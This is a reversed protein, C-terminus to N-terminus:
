LGNTVSATNSQNFTGGVGVNAAINTQVAAASGVANLNSVAMLNKQSVDELDLHNNESLNKRSEGGAESIEERTSTKSSSESAASSSAETFGCEKSASSGSGAHFDITKDYDVVVACAQVFETEGSKTETEGTGSKAINVDLTEDYDLVALCSSESSESFSGARAELSSSSSSTSESTVSTTSNKSFSSSSESPNYNLLLATNSQNVGINEIAELPDGATTRAINTQVAIASDVANANNVAKLETQSEDSLKIDNSSYHVDVVAQTQPDIVVWEGANIEEMESDSLTAVAAFAESALVLVFLMMFMLLKKM